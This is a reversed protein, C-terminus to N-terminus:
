NLKYGRKWLRSGQNDSSLDLSNNKLPQKKGIKQLKSFYFSLRYVMFQVSGYHRREWKEQLM